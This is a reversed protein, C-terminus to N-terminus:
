IYHPLTFKFKSGQGPESEVWIKGGHLGVFEKCFLLGLGTGQENNTGSMSHFKDIKFLKKITEESIGTGNDKVEIEVFKKGERASILINGGPYTYKIANSILNRFITKTMQLDATIYQNPVVSHNITIQKQATTTNFTELEDIVLQHLNIKVPNFSKESNQSVSWALLNDLLSLTRTASNSAIRILKEVESKDYDTMNEQLLDFVGIATCLPSRLDHAVISLFRTNRAVSEALNKKGDEVQNELNVNTEELQHILLLNEQMKEKNDTSEPKSTAYVRQTTKKALDLNNLINYRKTNM